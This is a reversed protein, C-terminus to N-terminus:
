APLWVNPGGFEFEEAHLDFVVGGAARAATCCAKVSAVLAAPGCVVVAVRGEGFQTADQRMREFIGPLDPRGFRLM